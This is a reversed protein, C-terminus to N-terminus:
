DPDKLKTRTAMSVDGSDGQQWRADTSLYLTTGDWSLSPKVENTPTNLPAGLNVPTSWQSLTDPRTSVWLDVSPPQGVGGPRGSTFIIELGDQRRVFPLSEGYTTNLESVNIPAGFIEHDEGVMTSVYIDNEGKGGPRNSGFYLFTQVTAQDEFVSPGVENASSNVTCGLNKPTEWGDDDRKDARHSVWLDNGGCGDPRNSVFYLWHGDITVHPDFDNFATNIEPGLNIPTEWPDDVADRHSVYIDMLGYGGPRTSSFYLDLNNKAIFPRNDQTTGDGNIPSAVLVAASWPSFQPPDDALLLPASPLLVACTLAARVINRGFRIRM